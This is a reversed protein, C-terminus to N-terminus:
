LTAKELDVNCRMQRERQEDTYDLAFTVGIIKWTQKRISILSGVPLVMSSEVRALLKLGDYFEITASM